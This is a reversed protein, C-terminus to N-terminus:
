CLLISPRQRRRLRRRQKGVKRDEREREEEAEEVLFGEPGTFWWRACGCCGGCGGGGGGIRRQVRGDASEEAVEVEGGDMVRLEERM